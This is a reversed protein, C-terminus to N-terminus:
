EGARLLPCLGPGFPGGPMLGRSVMRGRMHKVGDFEEDVRPRCEWRGRFENLRDEDMIWEYARHLRFNQREQLMEQKAERFANELVEQDIGLKSAVRALLTEPPPVSSEDTDASVVGALLASVAIVVVLVGAM